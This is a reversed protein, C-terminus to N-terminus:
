SDFNLPVHKLLNKLVTTESRINCFSKKTKVQLEILDKPCYNAMKNMKLHSWISEVPNLDPAYPPLLEISLRRQSKIFRDVIKSRHARLRDWILIVKGSTNKMLQRLFALCERAGFNNDTLLRFILHVKRFGPSTTLAGMASIKNRSRTKQYLIPTKGRPAWSRRVLPAMM